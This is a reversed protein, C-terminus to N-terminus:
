HLYSSHSSRQINFNMLSVRQRAYNNTNTVNPFTPKNTSTSNYGNIIRGRVPFYHRTTGAADGLSTEKVKLATLRASESTFQTTSGSISGTGQSMLPMISMTKEGSTGDTLEQDLDLYTNLGHVINKPNIKGATTDSEQAVSAAAQAQAASQQTFTSADEAVRSYSTATTYDGASNTQGSGGTEEDVNIIPTYDFPRTIPQQAITSNIFLSNNAQTRFIPGNTTSNSEDILWKRHLHPHVTNPSRFHTVNTNHGYNNAITMGTNLDHSHDSYYLGDNNPNKFINYSFTAM